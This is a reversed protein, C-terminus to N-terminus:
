RTKPFTTIRANVANWVEEITMTATIVVNLQRPERGSPLFDEAV